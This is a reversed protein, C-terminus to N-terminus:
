EKIGLIDALEKDFEEQTINREIVSSCFNHWENRNMVRYSDIQILQEVLGDILMDLIKM